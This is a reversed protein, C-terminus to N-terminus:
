RLSQFFQLYPAIEDRRQPQYAQVQPAMIQPAASQPQASLAEGIIGLGQAWKPAEPMKVHEGMSM